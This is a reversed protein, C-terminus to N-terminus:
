FLNLTRAFDLQILIQNSFSLSQSVMKLDLYSVDDEEEEVEIEEEEYEEDGNLGEGDNGSPVNSMSVDQIPQTISSITPKPTSNDRSLLQQLGLQATHAAQPATVQESAQFTTQNSPAADGYFDDDDDDM